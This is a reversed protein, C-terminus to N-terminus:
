GVLWCVALVVPFFCRHAEGVDQQPGGGEPGGASSQGSYSCCGVNDGRPSREAQARTQM